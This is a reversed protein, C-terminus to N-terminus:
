ANGGRLGRYCSDNLGLRDRSSLCDDDGVVQEVGGSNARDDEDTGSAKMSMQSLILVMLASLPINIDAQSLFQIM